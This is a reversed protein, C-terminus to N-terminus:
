QFLKTLKTKGLASALAYAGKDKIPRHALDLTRCDDDIIFADSAGARFIRRFRPRPPHLLLANLKLTNVNKFLSLHHSLIWGVVALFLFVRTHPCTVVKSASTCEVPIILLIRTLGGKCNFKRNM